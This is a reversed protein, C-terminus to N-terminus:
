AARAAPIVGRPRRKLPPHEVYKWSLIACVLTLPFAVAINFLPTQPGFLWVMLGQAPFAYLYIGYSYDGVRNYPLLWPHRTAALWLAGCSVTLIFLFDYLVTARLLVTAAVLAVLVPLSLINRDRLCWALMGIAFPRSLELVRSFEYFVQVDLSRLVQALVIWGILVVITLRTRFLLGAFGWLAVAAYCILEYTLTWISGAVAPTPNDQFVGPLQFHMRVFTINRVVFAWTGGETLYAQLPLVTVLPGLLFALVLVSVALGPFIRRFRASAFAALSRTRAYSATVFYGSLAFFATVAITGFTFGMRQEVPAYIGPGLTLPWSHSVLVLTAAAARVLNASNERSSLRDNLIMRCVM